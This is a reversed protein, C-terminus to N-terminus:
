TTIRISSVTSENHKHSTDPRTPLIQWEFYIGPHGTVAVPRESGYPCKKNGHHSTKVSTFSSITNRALGVGVRNGILM